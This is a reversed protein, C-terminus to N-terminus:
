RARSMKVTSACSPGSEMYAYEKEFPPFIVRRAHLVQAAKFVSQQRVLEQLATLVVQRHPEYIAWRGLIYSGDRKQGEITVYYGPCVVTGVHKGSAAKSHRRWGLRIGMQTMEAASKEVDMALYDWDRPIAPNFVGAPTRIRIRHEKFLKLLQYGLVLDRDRSLRSM